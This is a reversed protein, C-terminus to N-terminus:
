QWEGGGNGESAQGSENGAFRSIVFGMHADAVKVVGDENSVARFEFGDRKRVAVEDVRPADGQAGRTRAAM